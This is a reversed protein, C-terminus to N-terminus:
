QLVSIAVLKHQKAQESLQKPFHFRCNSIPSELQANDNWHKVSCMDCLSNAAPANAKM